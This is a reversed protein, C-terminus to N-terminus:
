PDALLELFAIIPSVGRKAALENSGYEELRAEVDRGTLGRSSTRLCDLLESLNLNLISSGECIPLRTIPASPQGGSDPTSGSASDLASDPTEDPIREPTSGRFDISM